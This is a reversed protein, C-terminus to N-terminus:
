AVRISRIIAKKSHGTYYKGNAEYSNCVEGHRVLQVVTQWNARWPKDYAKKPVGDARMFTRPCPNKVKVPRHGFVYCAIGVFATGAVVGIGISVKKIKKKTTEKM